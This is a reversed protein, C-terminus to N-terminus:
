PRRDNMKAKAKVLQEQITNVSDVIALEFTAASKKVFLDNGPVGLRIECIQNEPDRESGHFLTVEANVIKDSKGGLKQVKERVFAELDPGAKFGLSQIIVDM